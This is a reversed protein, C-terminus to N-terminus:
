AGLTLVVKEENDFLISKLARYFESLFFPRGTYKVIKGGVNLGAEMAMLRAINAEYSHEAVIIKKESIKGVIEKLEESPFPWLMKLNVYAGRVGVEKAASELAEVAVGKTSGWGIIIFEPDEFGYVKLKENLPVEKRILELKKMRKEYMKIRNEPDEVIHGIEDHEDGSYWIVIGDDGIFARPSISNSADFRRYEGGNRFISGREIRIKEIDPIKVSATTNALFKDLLHIVPVQFKEALNFAEAADLIAEEHDGSSIVIRAFEGHSSFIANMLDSQSGRTPQGTSPGGRQYYTIVIPVENAGAWSLAEVMLDFGPGSTATSSRAGTLAAGITSSIASIEDETQLIVIPGIDQNGETGHGYKELTTSEDAAPTIPYYAQYRAGGVIKGIAVADNGTLVMMKEIKLKPTDLPLIEKMSHLRESVMEYLALNHKLINERNKFHSTIGFLLYDDELGIVTSISSVLITSVYRSLHGPDLKFKKSLESLISAFDIGIPKIGEEKRLYEIISSVAQDLGKSELKRRIRQKTINEMSSVENLKKKENNIDYILAGGGRIEDFHTFVTEADSAAIIQVPLDISQPLKESSVRMVIYSHRGVINSFYERSAIIGYGKRTFARSLISMSTEIGSGQPGGIIINIEKM